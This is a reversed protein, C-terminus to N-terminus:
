AIFPLANNESTWWIQSTSGKFSRAFLGDSLFLTTVDHNVINFEVLRAFVWLQEWSYINGAGRVHALDSRQAQIYTNKWIKNKKNCPTYRVAMASYNLKWAESGALFNQMEKWVQLSEKQVPPNSTIGLPARGRRPSTAFEKNRWNACCHFHPSCPPSRASYAPKIQMFLGRAPAEEWSYPKGRINPIVSIYFHLSPNTSILGVYSKQYLNVSPPTKGLHQVSHWHKKGEQPHLRLIGPKMVGSILFLLSFIFTKGCYQIPFFFFLNTM